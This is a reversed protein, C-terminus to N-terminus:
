DWYYEHFIESVKGKKFMIGRNKYNSIKAKSYYWIILKPPGLIRLVDEESSHKEIKQQHTESIDETYGNGTMPDVTFHIPSSNKTWDFYGKGIPTGLNKLVDKESMGIKIKKFGEESYGPPHDSDDGFIFAALEGTVGDVFYSNLFVLFVIASLVVASLIFKKM